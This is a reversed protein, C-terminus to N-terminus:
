SVLAIELGINMTSGLGKGMVTEKLIRESCIKVCVMGRKDMSNILMGKSGAMNKVYLAVM